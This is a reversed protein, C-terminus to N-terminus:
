FEDLVKDGSEGTRVRLADMIPLVWIVGDGSKGTQNTEIVAKVVKPVLKDPVVIFIARKPILRGSQGLQAIAEEYGQEAGKLLKMDVLGKGRGLAEFATMSSVGANILAKKTQNIMNIRIIAMVEKM